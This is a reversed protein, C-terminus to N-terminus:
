AAARTRRSARRTAFALPASSSAGTSAKLFYANTPKSARLLGNKRERERCASCGMVTREPALKLVEHHGRKRRQLRVCSVQARQDFRAERDLPL